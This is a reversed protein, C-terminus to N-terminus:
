RVTHSALDVTVSDFPRKGADTTDTMGIVLQKKSATVTLYGFGKKSKEFVADGFVQGTAATVSSNNHGGCGAVINPVQGRLAGLQVNRTYRQYNHAHGALMAHPLIGAKQCAADIQQVM